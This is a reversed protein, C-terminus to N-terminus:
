HDLKFTNLLLNQLA